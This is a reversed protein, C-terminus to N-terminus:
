GKTRNGIATLMPPATKAMYVNLHVLTFRGVVGDASLGHAVQFARVQEAVADDFYDGSQPVDEGSYSALAQRLWLVDAGRDGARLSDSRIAPRWTLLYKGYWYRDIDLRSFREARDGFQIEAVDGDLRTLLVHHRQGSEDLLELIAPRNYGTLHKWSGTNFVCDLGADAALECGTRQGLEGLNLQWSAFLAQFATDTDSKITADALWAGLSGDVPQAASSVSPAQTVPIVHHSANSLPQPWYAWVAAATSAAVLGAAISAPWRWWLRGPVSDGVEAAARRVITSDVYPLNASFAGLLSRDCIINTVRPNGRALRYVWGMASRNFLARSAGAVQCRHVIYEFTEARSLARLTYRATVRQALQRLDHRALKTCLEPQGVLIIQLLKKKSTELNTLLRVQELVDPELNQAEDMILVTQRGKAHNHLLFANLRDVLDKLTHSKKPYKIHLEDCITAVFELVTMAPNLVLAVDVDEPLDELLARILTTKGTGVEGTLQVFGGAVQMGYRFHSLAERDRSGQYLYHPDPAISFPAETLGFHENYM